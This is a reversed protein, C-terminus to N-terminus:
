RYIVMYLSTAGVWTLACGAVLMLMSVVAEVKVQATGRTMAQAMLGLSATGRSLKIVSNAVLFLGLGIMAWFLLFAMAIGIPNM